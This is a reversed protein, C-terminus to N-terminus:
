LNFNLMDDMIHDTKFIIKSIRAVSHFKSAINPPFNHYLQKGLEDMKFRTAHLNKTSRISDSNDQYNYPYPNGQYNYPYQIYNQDIDEHLPYEFLLGNSTKPLYSRSQYTKQETKRSNLHTVRNAEIKVAGRINYKPIFKTIGNSQPNTIKKQTKNNRIHIKFHRELNWKRSFKKRCQACSYKKMVPLM